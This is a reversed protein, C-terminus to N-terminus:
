PKTGEFRARMLACRSTSSRPVFFATHELTRRKLSWPMTVKRRCWAPGLSGEVDLTSWHWEMLKRCLPICMTCISAEFRLRSGRWVRKWFDNWHPLQTWMKDIDALRRTPCTQWNAGHRRTPFPNITLMDQELCRLLLDRASPCCSIPTCKQLGALARVRSDNSTGCV